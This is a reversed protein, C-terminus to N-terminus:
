FNHFGFFYMFFLLQAAYLHLSITLDGAIKFSQFLFQLILAVCFWAVYNQLPAHGIDWIWFDYIPASTEMFFDLFVMLLSAMLIRLWIKRTLAVSIVGTILVLITWNVGIMLPIEDLKLGLNAGYHYKGFLIGYHVGIWEVLFGFCFILGAFLWYKLTKIPFYIILVILMLTLTLPTKSIFWDKFGMTVGLVAAIHFVWLAAISIAKHNDDIFNATLARM